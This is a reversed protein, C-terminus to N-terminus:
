PCPSQYRNRVVLETSAAHFAVTGDDNWVLFPLRTVGDTTANVFFTVHEDPLDGAPLRDGIGLFM